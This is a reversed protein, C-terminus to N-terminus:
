CAFGGDNPNIPMSAVGGEESPSAFISAMSESESPCVSFCSRSEDGPSVSMLSISGEKSTIALVWAKDGGEICSDILSALGGGVSPSIKNKSYAHRVLGSVTDIDITRRHKEM